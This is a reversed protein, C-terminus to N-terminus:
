RKHFYLLEIPQPLITDVRPTQGSPLGGEPTRRPIFSSIANRSSAASCSRSISSVSGATAASRRRKASSISAIATSSLRSRRGPDRADSGSYGDHNGPGSSVRTYPSGLPEQAHDRIAARQHEGTAGNSAPRQGTASVPKRAHVPAAAASPSHTLLPPARRFAVRPLPHGFSWLWGGSPAM